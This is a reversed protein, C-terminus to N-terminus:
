GRFRVLNGDKSIPAVTVTGVSCLRAFRQFCNLVLYLKNPMNAIEALGIVRQQMSREFKLVFM